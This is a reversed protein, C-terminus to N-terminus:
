HTEPPQDEYHEDPMTEVRKPPLSFFRMVQDVTKMDDCLETSGLIRFVNKEVVFIVRGRPLDFYEVGDPLGLKPRLREWYVCHDENGNIFGGEAELSEIEEREGIVTGRFVWFIGVCSRRVM